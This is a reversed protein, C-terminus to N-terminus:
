ALRRRVSSVTSSGAHQQREPGLQPQGPTRRQVGGVGGVVSRQQAGDLRHIRVDGGFAAAQAHFQGVPQQLEELEGGTTLHEKADGGFVAQDLDAIGIQRRRRPNQRGATGSEAVGGVEILRQAQAGVCALQVRGQGTRWPRLPHHDLDALGGTRAAVERM